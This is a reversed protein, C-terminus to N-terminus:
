ANYEKMAALIITALKMAFAEDKDVKKDAKKPAEKKPAEKKPAEKKPAEKKNEAVKVAKKPKQEVPLDAGNAIVDKYTSISYVMNEDKIYYHGKNGKRGYSYRMSLVDTMFKKESTSLKDVIIYDHGKHEKNVSVKVTHKPATLAEKVQKVLKDSYPAVFVGDAIDYVPVFGYNKRITSVQSATLENEIYVTVKNENKKEVIRGILEM